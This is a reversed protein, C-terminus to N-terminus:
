AFGGGGYSAILFPNTRAEHQVTTPPGHGCFLRTTGPLTLVQQRISRLLEQFSGGPLDTRGISGQFVVDGVFASGDTEEYFLVHGPAHGPVHRVEFTLAGFTLRQGHTLAHDIPPLPDVVMGFQVAQLAAASYLTRDGPHLYIPAPMRHVLRAVGEIHDLHAHTLLISALRLAHRELFDAM